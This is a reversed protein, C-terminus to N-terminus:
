KKIWNGIDDDTGARGDPGLSFVDFSNTNHRGPSEYVFDNGWADKPLVDSDFYPGQWNTEGLPQHLLDLLGSKSGPYHSTDIQFRGLAQKFAAVQTVTAIVRAKETNRPGLMQSGVWFIAFLIAFAAL